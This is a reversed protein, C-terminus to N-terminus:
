PTAVPGPCAASVVADVKAYTGQADEWATRGLDFAEQPNVLPGASGAGLFSGIGGVAAFEAALAGALRKNEASLDTAGHVDIAAMNNAVDIALNQAAAFDGAAALDYAHAILNRQEALQQAAGCYQLRVADVSAEPQGCSLCALGLVSVLSWLRLKNM